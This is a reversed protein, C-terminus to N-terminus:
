FESRCLCNKRFVKVGAPGRLSKPLFKLGEGTNEFGIVVFGLYSERYAALKTDVEPFQRFKPKIIKEATSVPTSIKTEISIM